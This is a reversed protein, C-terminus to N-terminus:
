SDDGERLLTILDSLADRQLEVDHLHEAALEKAHLAFHDDLALDALRLGVKALDIMALLFDGQLGKHRAATISRVRPLDTDTMAVVAQDGAARLDDARRATPADV